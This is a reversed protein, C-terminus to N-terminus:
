RKGPIDLLLSLMSVAGTVLVFALIISPLKPSSAFVRALQFAGEGCAFAVVVCLMSWALNTDGPSKIGISLTAAMGVAGALGVVMPIRIYGKRVYRATALACVAPIGGLLTAILFALFPRTVFVIAWLGLSAFLSGVAPAVILFAIADQQLSVDRMGPLPRKWAEVIEAETDPQDQMSM